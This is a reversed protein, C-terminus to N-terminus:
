KRPAPFSGRLEQLYQALEIDLVSPKHGIDWTSLWVSVTRWVNEWRPHHDMDSIKPVAQAMFAMADEFSAFEFLRHLEIRTNPERGPIESVIDKWGDSVNDSNLSVLASALEQATLEKLNLIPKPYRIPNASRRKLGLRDLSDLVNALDSEWRTDRIEVGQFRALNAIAEPLADRKPMPTGSLLLPIISLKARLAHGIENCVWDDPKDLRRRGNDDAIKLWNSGIIPILITASALARDIRAPWDDGMRISETDIFVRTAGFTRAITQALWRSAASSDARRYSIFVLPEAADSMVAAM